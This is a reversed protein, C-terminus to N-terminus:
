ALRALYATHATGNAVIGLVQWGSNLKEALQVDSLQFIESIREVQWRAAPAPAPEVAVTKKKPSKEMNTQALAM